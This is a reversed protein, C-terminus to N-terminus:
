HQPTCQFCPPTEGPGCTSRECVGLPGAPLQCQEGSKTCELVPDAAFSGPDCASAAFLLAVVALLRPMQQSAFGYGEGSPQQRRDLSPNRRTVPRENSGFL